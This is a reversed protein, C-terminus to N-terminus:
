RRGRPSEGDVYFRALLLRAQAIQSALDGRGNREAMEVVRQLMEMAEGFAPAPPVGTEDASLM